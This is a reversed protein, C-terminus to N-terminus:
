AASGAPKQRLSDRMIAQVIESLFVPDVKTLDLPKDCSPCSIFESGGAVFFRESCHRCEAVVEDSVQSM